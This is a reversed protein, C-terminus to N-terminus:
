GAREGAADYLINCMAADGHSWPGGHTRERAGRGRATGPGGGDDDAVDAIGNQRAGVVIEGAAERRLDWRDGLTLAHFEPNLMRFSEVERAQWSRMDPCFRSQAGVVGFFWNAMGVMRRGFENRKKIVMVRGRVQTEELRNLHVAKMLRGLWSSPKERKAANGAFVHQGTLAMTM